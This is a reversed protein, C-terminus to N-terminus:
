IKKIEEKRIVFLSAGPTLGFNLPTENEDEEQINNTILHSIFRTTLKTRICKKTTIQGGPEYMCIKIRNDYVIFIIIAVPNKQAIRLSTNKVTTLLHEFKLGLDKETAM